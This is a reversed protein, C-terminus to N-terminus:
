KQKQGRQDFLECISFSLSKKWISKQIFIDQFIINKMRNTLFRSIESDLM